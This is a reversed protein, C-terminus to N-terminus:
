NQLYYNQLVGAFTCNRPEHKLNMTALALVTFFADPAVGGPIRAPEIRWITPRTNANVRCSM